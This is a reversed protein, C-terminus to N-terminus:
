MGALIDVWGLELSGALDEALLESPLTSSKLFPKSPAFFSPSKVSTTLAYKDSGSDNTEIHFYSVHWQRGVNNPSLVVRQYRRSIAVM